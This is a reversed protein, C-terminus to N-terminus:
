NPRLAIKGLFHEDLARLAEDAQELRYTRAVVVEFPAAEILQNLKKILEPTPTGDYSKVTIGARAKPVPAVGNPYAVRGGDRLAELAREAPKGGATLLRL